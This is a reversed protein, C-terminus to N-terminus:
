LRGSVVVQLQLKTGAPSAGESRCDRHCRRGFWGLLENRGRDGM